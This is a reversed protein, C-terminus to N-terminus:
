RPELNEPKVNREVMGGKFYARIRVTKGTKSPNGVIAKIKKGKAGFCSLWWVPRWIEPEQRKIVIQEATPNSM